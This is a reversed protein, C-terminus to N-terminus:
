AARRMTVLVGTWDFPRSRVPAPAIERGVYWGLLPVEEPFGGLVLAAEDEAMGTFPAAIRTKALRARALAVDAEAIRLAAAADDLDQPTGANQEVVKKVRDYTSQAQDRLAEVRAVEAAIEADDLRAILAGRAISEGEEFPLSRVTGDIESVVTVADAARVTGVTEFTQALSRMEVEAVEVATPPFEFGGGGGGGGAGGEGGGCGSLAGATVAAVATVTGLVRMRRAADLNRGNM